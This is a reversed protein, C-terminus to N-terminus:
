KNLHYDFLECYEPYKKRADNIFKKRLEIIEESGGFKAVDMYHAYGTQKSMSELHQKQESLSKKKLHGLATEISDLSEYKEKYFELLCCEELISMFVAIYKPSKSKLFVDIDYLNEEVFNLITQSYTKLLDVDYGGVVGLNARSIYDNKDYNETIKIIQHPVNKLYKIMDKACIYYEDSYEAKQETIDQVFLSSKVEPLQKRYFADGDFHLFPENQISYTKLKGLAWLYKSKPLDTKLVVNKYPLGLKDILISKGNEDAVLEVNYGKEIFSMVSTLWLYWYFKNKDKDVIGTLTKINVLDDNNGIIANTFFSQVIKM